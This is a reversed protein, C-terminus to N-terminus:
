LYIIFSILLAIAILIVGLIIEIVKNQKKVREEIVSPEAASLIQYLTHESHESRMM